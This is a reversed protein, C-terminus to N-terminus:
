GPLNETLVVEFEEMSRHKLGEIRRSVEAGVEASDSRSAILAERDAYILGITSRGRGRDVFATARCFGPVSERDAARSNFAEILRDADAAEHELVHRRM